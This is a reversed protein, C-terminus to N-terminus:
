YDLAYLTYSLVLAPIATYMTAMLAARPAIALAPFLADGDNSIANGLLASYPVLGGLYLTTVIIQPGCGPIFGILVGVLPMLPAWTKFLAGLDVGLGAVGFEYVMFAAVVWVTVSATGDTVRQWLGPVEPSTAPCAPGNCSSETASQGAWLVFALMSGAVGIAEVFGPMGIMTGADLQALGLVGVALGPVSLVLWARYAIRMRGVSAPGRATDHSAPKPRMFDRGHVADVFRGAIVGALFSLAFTVVATLPEKALLVFAADGMTGTLVAVVAGFSLRGRAYLTMAMIAGGCGPTTGLLAAAPVQWRAHRDLWAATDVRLVAEIGYFLLLTASVFAAVQFFADALAGRATEGVAGPLALLLALGVTIVVRSIHLRRPQRTTLLERSKLILTSM